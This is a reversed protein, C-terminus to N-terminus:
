EGPRVLGVEYALVVAQVRDRLHLKMLIRKVHTKVTAESVYLREALEANSLGRAVLELVQLERETLAELDRPTRDHAAPRRAFEDILRRTVCPSLLGEGAAVLRVGELLDEPPTRKLLFGSAGARLSEFVYEDLEFTPLVLVRPPNGGLQGIRRTAELGDLKPMRIDMLVVHPRARRALEVAAVGDAAEGVVTIGEATELIMRLGARMLHDDDALLVEITM